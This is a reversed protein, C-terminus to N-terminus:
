PQKSLDVHTNTEKVAKVLMWQKIIDVTLNILDRGFIQLEYRNNDFYVDCLAKSDSSKKYQKEFEEKTIVRLEGIGECLVFDGKKFQLMTKDNKGRIVGNSNMLIARIALDSNNESPDIIKGDDNIVLIPLKTLDVGVGKLILNTKDTEEDTYKFVEANGVLKQGTLEITQDRSIHRLKNDPTKVEYGFCRKNFLIRKTIICKGYNVDDSTFKARDKESLENIDYVPLKNINVKRGRLVTKNDADIAIRMNPVLGKSVMWAVRDVGEVFIDGDDSKLQYAVVKDNHIYRGSVNYVKNQNAMEM